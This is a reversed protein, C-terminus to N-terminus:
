TKHHRPVHSLIFFHLCVRSLACYPSSIMKVLCLKSFDFRYTCQLWFFFRKPFVLRCALTEVGKKLEGLGGRTNRINISLFMLFM